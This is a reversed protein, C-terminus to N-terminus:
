QMLGVAMAGVAEGYRGLYQEPTFRQYCGLAEEVSGFEEPVTAWAPLGATGGREHESRGGDSGGGGGNGGDGGGGGGDGEDIAPATGAAVELLSPQLTCSPAAAAVGAQADPEGTRGAVLCDGNRSCGAGGGELGQKVGGGGGGGAHTDRCEASAVAGGSASGIREGSSASSGGAAAAHPTPEAAEESSGGGGGGGGGGGRPGRLKLDRLQATCQLLLSEQHRLHADPGGEAESSTTAAAAAAARLPASVLIMGELARVWCELAAHRAQLAQPRHRRHPAPPPLTACRGLLVANLLPAVKALTDIASSHRTCALRQNRPTAPAEQACAGAPCGQAGAHSGYRDAGGSASGWTAVRVEREAELLRLVRAKKRRANELSKLSGHYRGGARSM